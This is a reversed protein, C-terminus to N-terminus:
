PRVPSNIVSCYSASKNVFDVYADFILSDDVFSAGVRGNGEYPCTM